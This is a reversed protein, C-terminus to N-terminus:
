IHGHDKHCDLELLLIINQLMAHIVPYSAVYTPELRPFYYLCFSIKVQTVDPTLVVGQAYCVKRRAAHDGAHM